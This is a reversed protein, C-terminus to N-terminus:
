IFDGYFAPEEPMTCIDVGHSFLERIKNAEQKTMKDPFEFSLKKLEGGIHYPFEFYGTSRNM